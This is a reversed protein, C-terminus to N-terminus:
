SNKVEMLFDIVEKASFQFEQKAAYEDEECFKIVKELLLKKIESRKRKDPEALAQEVESSFRSPYYEEFNHKSFQQFQKASWGSDCYKIKLNNIISKENEGNDVVIWVRNKYTPELHLFVFLKNFDEFKVAVESVSHASFTRVKNQLSEVYWPILFDRCIREASSEEFFIWYNWMDYDFPEYGLDELVARRKEPTDVVHVKSTPIRDVLSMEVSLLKSDQCAGLDKLVINSHTTIIFQNKSSKEVILDLLKKLARPHIDNEPEEIVFLKNEVRCLDVILGLLNSIGEGMMDIPINEENRIIFAAKKGHLSHTTSVRFGIIEDCARIYEDYAPKFEPNSIRDIKAYLNELSGGVRNVVEYSINESYGGVKRKSQYPIIFNDPESNPFGDWFLLAMGNRIGQIHSESTQAYYHEIELHGSLHNRDIWIRVTGMSSNIRTYQKGFGSSKQLLSISNLITSKGNNNPGVIVNIGPSLHVEENEFCRINELQVRTIKM